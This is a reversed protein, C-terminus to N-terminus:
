ADLQDRYDQLSSRLAQVAYRKRALLTNLPIGTRAAMDRFAEGALEHAVFVERQPAPLGDLAVQLAQLM